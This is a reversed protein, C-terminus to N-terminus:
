QSSIVCSLDRIMAVSKEAYANSVIISSAPVVEAEVLTVGHNIISQLSRLVYDIAQARWVYRHDDDLRIVVHGSSLSRIRDNLLNQLEEQTTSNRKVRLANVHLAVDRSTKLSHITVSKSLMDVRQVVPLTAFDITSILDGKLSSVLDCGCVVSIDVLTNAGNIDFPVVVLAVRLTGRDFNVKLSSIISSEFSNM